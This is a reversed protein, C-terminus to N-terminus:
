VTILPITKRYNAALLNYDSLGVINSGDIDGQEVLATGSQGYHAALVNYDSLDTIGNGNLDGVLSGLYFVDDAALSNQATPHFVCKLWGNQVGNVDTWGLFVKKQHPATITVRVVDPPMWLSWSGDSQLAYFDYNGPTFTLNTDDTQFYIILGNIGKGYGSINAPLSSSATHGPLLPVVNPTIYADEGLGTPGRWYTVFREIPNM